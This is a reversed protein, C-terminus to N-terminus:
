IDSDSNINQQENNSWKTNYQKRLTYEIGFVCYTFLIALITLNEAFAYSFLYMGGQLCVSAAFYVLILRHFPIKNPANTRTLRKFIVSFIVFIIFAQLIGFDIVFDGVFTSFINDHMKLNPYASRVGTVGYPVKMGLMHKFYNCTRDGHRGGASEFAYDNFYYPAEGVYYILGAGVGGEREGFRSLSLAMFPLAIAIALIILTTRVIHTIRESLMPKVIIYAAIVNFICMTVETRQGLSLAYVTKMLLCFGMLAIMWLHRKKLTLYYFFFLFVIPSFINFVVSPLNSIGLHTNVDREVSYLSDGASNDTLIMLIGTSLGNFIETTYMLVCTAYVIVFGYFFFTSPPEIQQINQRDYQVLPSIALRLMLALYLFPLLRLPISDGYITDTSFFWFAGIIPYIIYSLLTVSAVGLRYNIRRQHHWFVYCLLAIYLITYTIDTTFTSSM